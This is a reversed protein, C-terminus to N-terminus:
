NEIYWYIFKLFYHCQTLNDILTWNAGAGSTAGFRLNGMVKGATTVNFDGATNPFFIPALGTTTKNYTIDPHLTFNGYVSLSGNNQSINGTAGSQVTFDWCFSPGSIYIDGKFGSDFIVNDTAIPISASGTGASSTLNWSTTSEYDGTINRAYLTAAQASRFWSSVLFLCFLFAILRRM